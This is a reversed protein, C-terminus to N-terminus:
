NEGIPTAEEIKVSPVAAGEGQEHGASTGNKDTGRLKDGESGGKISFKRETGAILRKLNGRHRHVVFAFLAFYSWIMSAPDRIALGIVAVALAAVVSALSVYRTIATAAVFVAFAGAAPVTAAGLLMGFGTAIGKGGRFGLWPSFCHGVVASMGTWFAWEHVHPWDPFMLRVALAPVLGKFIDLFFVTLGAGKGLVRHVNTAGINGSGKTLIDVGRRRAVMAGFPVAGFFYAAVILAAVAVMM